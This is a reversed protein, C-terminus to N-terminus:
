VSKLLWELLHSPLDNLFEDMNTMMADIYPMTFIIVFAIAGLTIVAMAWGPIDFLPMVSIFTVLGGFVMFMPGINTYGGKLAAIGIIFLVVAMIVGGLSITNKKAMKVTKAKIEKSRM